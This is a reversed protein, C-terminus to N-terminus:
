SHVGLPLSQSSLCIPVIMRAGTRGIELEKSEGVFRQRRRGAWLNRERPRPSSVEEWTSRYTFGTTGRGDLFKKWRESRLNPDELYLTKDTEAQM